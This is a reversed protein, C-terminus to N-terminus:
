YDIKKQSSVMPRPNYHSMLAGPCHEFKKEPIVILPDLTRIKCYDQVPTAQELKKLESKLKYANLFSTGPRGDELILEHLRNRAAHKQTILASYSSNSAM